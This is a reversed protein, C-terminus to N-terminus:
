AVLYTDALTKFCQRYWHPQTEKPNNPSTLNKGFMEGKETVSWFKKPTGKSSSRTLEVLIGAQALKKNATAASMTVGNDRLLDTLSATPMSSLPAAAVTSSPADIAYVPLTPLLHAAGHHALSARVMGLKGSNAVNLIRALVDVAELEDRLVGGASHTLMARAELEQWRDVIRARLEISYGSVLILTERKPLKFAPQPRGYADPLDASFGASTEGLEEFMKRIDALVHRHDKGTLEAIERSSMTASTNILMNM